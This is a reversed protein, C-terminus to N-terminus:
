VRKVGCAMLGDIVCGFGFCFCFGGGHGGLDGDDVRVDV